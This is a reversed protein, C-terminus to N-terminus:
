RKPRPNTLERLRAVAVVLALTTRTTKYRAKKRRKDTEDVAITKPLSATRTWSLRKLLLTTTTTKKKNAVITRRCNAEDQGEV